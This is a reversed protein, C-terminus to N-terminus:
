KLMVYVGSNYWLCVSYYWLCVVTLLVVTFGNYCLQSVVTFGRYCLQLVATVGCFGSDCGQLVV